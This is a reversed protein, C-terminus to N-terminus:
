DNMGRGTQIQKDKWEKEETISTYEWKEKRDGAKVLAKMSLTKGKNRTSAVKWQEKREQWEGNRKDYEIGEVMLLYLSGKMNKRYGNESKKRAENGNRTMCEKGM